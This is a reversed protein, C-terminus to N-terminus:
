ILKAKFYPPKVDSSLTYGDDEKAETSSTTDNNNNQNETTSTSCAVLSLSMVIALFFSLFKKMFNGRISKM